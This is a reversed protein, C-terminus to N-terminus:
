ENNPYIKTLTAVIGNSYNYKIITHHDEPLFTPSFTKTVAATTIFSRIKLKRIIDDFIERIEEIEEESEDESEDESNVMFQFRKLSVCKRFFVVAKKLDHREFKCGILILEELAIMQKMITQLLSKVAEFAANCGFVFNKLQLNQMLLGENPFCATRRNYTMCLTNLSPIQEPWVLQSRKLGQFFLMDLRPFSRALLDSHIENAVM